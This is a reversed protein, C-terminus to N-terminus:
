NKKNIDQLAKKLKVNEEFLYKNDKELQFIRLSLDQKDRILLNSQEIYLKEKAEVESLREKMRTIESRLDEVIASYNTIIIHDIEANNKRRSLFFTIVATFVSSGLIIGLINIVQSGSM